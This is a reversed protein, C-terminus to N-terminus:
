YIYRHVPKSIGPEHGVRHLVKALEICMSIKSNHSDITSIKSSTENAVSGPACRPIWLRAGPFFCRLTFPTHTLPPHWGQWVVSLISESNVHFRRSLFGKSAVGGSV